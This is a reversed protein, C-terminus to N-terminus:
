CLTTGFKKGGGILTPEIIKVLFKPHPVHAIYPLKDELLVELVKEAPM